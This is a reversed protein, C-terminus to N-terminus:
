RKTGCSNQYADILCAGCMRNGNRMDVLLQRFTEGQNRVITALVGQDCGAKGSNQLSSREVMPRTDGPHPALRRYAQAAWPDAQFTVSLVNHAGAWRPWRARVACRLSASTTGSSRRRRVNGAGDGARVPALRRIARRALDARPTRSRKRCADRCSLVRNHKVDGAALCGVRPHRVTVSGEDARGVSSSNSMALRPM